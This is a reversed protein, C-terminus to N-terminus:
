RTIHPAAQASAGAAPQEDPFLDAEITALEAAGAETGVYASLAHWIFMLIAIGAKVENM